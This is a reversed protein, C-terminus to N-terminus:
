VHTRQTSEYLAHELGILVRSKFYNKKYRLITPRVLAFKAHSHFSVIRVYESQSLLTRARQLQNMTLLHRRDTGYHGQRTM